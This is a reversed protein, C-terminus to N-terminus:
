ALLHCPLVFYHHPITYGICGSANNLKLVTLQRMLGKETGEIDM